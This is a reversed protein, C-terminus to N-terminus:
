DLRWWPLRFSKGREMTEMEFRCYRWDCGGGRRETESEIRPNELILDSRDAAWGWGRIASCSTESFEPTFHILAHRLWRRSPSWYSSATVHQRWPYTSTTMTMIMIVVVSAMMMTTTTTMTMMMMMMMVVLMLMMMMMMMMTMMLTTPLLLFIMTTIKDM